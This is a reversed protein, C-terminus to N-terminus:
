SIELLSMTIMYSVKLIIFMTGVTSNMNDRNESTANSAPDSTPQTHPVLSSDMLLEMKEEKTVPAM